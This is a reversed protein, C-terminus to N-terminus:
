VSLFSILQDVCHKPLKKGSNIDIEEENKKDDKWSEMGTWDDKLWDEPMTWM